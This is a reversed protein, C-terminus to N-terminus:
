LIELEIKLGANSSTSASGPDIRDLIAELGGSTILGAPNAPSDVLLWQFHVSLGQLAPANPIGLPLLGRGMPDTVTGLISEISVLLRCGPAGIPGLNWPLPVGVWSASSAGALLFAAANAPAEAVSLDFFQSGIWPLCLLEPAPTKLNSGPCGQGFAKLDCVPAVTRFVYYARPESGVRFSIGKNSLDSGLAVIDVVLNDTGNFIFPRSLPIRSWTNAVVPWSFGYENFVTLSPGQINTNFNGSLTGTTNHGLRIAMSRFLFLGSSGSAFGLCRVLGPVSPLYKARVLFQARQNAYTVSGTGFPVANTGASGSTPDNDPSYYYSQAPLAPALVLLLLPLLKM